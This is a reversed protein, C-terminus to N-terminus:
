GYNTRKTTNSYKVFQRQERVFKIFQGVTIDSMKTSIFHSAIVRSSLPDMYLVKHSLDNCKREFVICNRARKWQVSVNNVIKGQLDETPAYSDCFNPGASLYEIPWFQNLVSLATDFSLPEDERKYLEEANIINSRQQDIDEKSAKSCRDMEDAWWKCLEHDVEGFHPVEKGDEAYRIVGAPCCYVADRIETDYKAYDTGVVECKHPVRFIADCGAECAGCGVCEDYTEDIWVRTIM